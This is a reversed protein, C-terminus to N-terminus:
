SEVWSLEIPGGDKGTVEIATAKRSHLYPAVAKGADMRIFLEKSQDRMVGLLFEVPTQGEGALAKARERPRNIKNVSGAKRGGTKKGKAM